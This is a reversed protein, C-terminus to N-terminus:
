KAPSADSCSKTHWRGPPALPSAGGWPLCTLQLGPGQVKLMQAAKQPDWSYLRLAERCEETTVGHVREQVQPLPLPSIPPDSSAAWVSRKQSEQEEVVSAGKRRGLLGPSHVVAKHPPNPQPVTLFPRSDSDGSCLQTEKGLNLGQLM